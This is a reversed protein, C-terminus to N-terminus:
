YRGWAYGVGIGLIQNKTSTTKQKKKQKKTTKWFLSHHHSWVETKKKFKIKPECDRRSKTQSL